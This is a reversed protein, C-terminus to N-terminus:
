MVVESFIFIKELSEVRKDNHYLTTFHALPLSAFGTYQKFIQIVGSTRTGKMNSKTLWDTKEGRIRWRTSLIRWKSDLVICLYRKNERRVRYINRSRFLEIFLDIIIVTALTVCDWQITRPREFLLQFIEMLKVKEKM